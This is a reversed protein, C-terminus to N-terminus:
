AANKERRQEAMPQEAGPVAFGTDPAFIRDDQDHGSLRCAADGGSAQKDMATCCGVEAEMGMSDDDRIPLTHASERAISAVGKGARPKGAAKRLDSAAVSQDVVNCITHVLRGAGVEMPWQWYSM